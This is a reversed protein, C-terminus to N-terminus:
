RPNGAVPGNAGTCWCDPQTPGEPLSCSGEPTVCIRISRARSSMPAGPMPSRVLEEEAESPM